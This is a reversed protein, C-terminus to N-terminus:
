ERDGEGSPLTEVRRSSRVKRTTYAKLYFVSSSDFHNEFKRPKGHRLCMYKENAFKFRDYFKIGIYLGRFSGDAELPFESDADIAEIQWKTIWKLDIETDVVCLKRYLSSCDIQRMMRLYQPLYIMEDETEKDTEYYSRDDPLDVYEDNLAEKANLPAHEATADPSADAEVPNRLFKDNILQWLLPDSGEPCSMTEAFSSREILNM